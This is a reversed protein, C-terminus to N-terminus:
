RRLTGRGRRLFQIWRIIGLLGAWSMNLGFGRALSTIKRLLIFAIVSFLGALALVLYFAIRAIQSAGPAMDTFGIAAAVIALLFIIAAWLFFM